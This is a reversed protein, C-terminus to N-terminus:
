LRAAVADAFSRTSGSGGLDTTRLGQVKLVEDVSGEIAAAAALYAANSSRESWWRMLMAASLILGAPNAIGRGAIDPASGHGANAAAHNDGVNLAAALGLGGSQAVAQNSLIDGFMNTTLIVDHREPALYLEAAMADVDVERLVVGPHASAEAEVERVFLGDTMRLVHRKGVVTVRNSRREAMAFAVGAIRRSAKATIRRVSMACDPTPMFEGSGAFLNRDAYFGETNERVIVCDMGQLAKPLGQRSRAPRINAFLDLRKRITGPINVGGEDIPPYATMGAPGLVVGDAAIAAEIVREPLTTGNRRHSAMGVEHPEFQLELGFRRDAAALAMLTADVIEPGIDDGPLIALKM